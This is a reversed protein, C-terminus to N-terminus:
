EALHSVAIEVMDTNLITNDSHALVLFNRFQDYKGMVSYKFYHYM